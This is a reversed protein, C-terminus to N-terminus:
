LFKLKRFVEASKSQNKSLTKHILACHLLQQNVQKGFYHKNILGFSFTLTVHPLSFFSLTQKWGEIIRFETYVEVNILVISNPYKM